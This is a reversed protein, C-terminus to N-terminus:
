NDKSENPTKILDDEIEAVVAVDDAFLLKQPLVYNCHFVLLFDHM